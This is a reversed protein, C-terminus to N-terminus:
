IIASLSLRAHYVRGPKETIQEFVGALKAARVKGAVNYAHVYQEFSRAPELWRPAIAAVWAIIDDELVPIEGFLDYASQKMRANQRLSFAVLQASAVFFLRSNGAKM